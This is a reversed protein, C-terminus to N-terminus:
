LKTYYKYYCTITYTLMITNTHWWDNFREPKLVIV